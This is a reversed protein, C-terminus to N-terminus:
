RWRKGERLLERIGEKVEGMEEGKERKREGGGDGKEGEVRGEGRGEGDREAKRGGREKEAEGGGERQKERMLTRISGVALLAINRPFFLTIIKEAKVNQKRKRDCKIQKRKENQYENSKTDGIKTDM